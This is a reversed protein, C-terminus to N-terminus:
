KAVRITFDGFGVRGDADKLEARFHHVGPPLNANPIEIGESGIFPLMRQTLDVSPMKRYTILISDRDIVAGGHAKFRIKFTLPSRVLGANPAPSLLMIEPRRTPSGRRELIPEDPLAAEDVTVLQIANATTGFLVVALISMGIQKMSMM